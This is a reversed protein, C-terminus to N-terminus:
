KLIQWVIFKKELNIYKEKVDTDLKKKNLLPRRNNNYRRILRDINVKLWISTCTKLIRSRIESNM